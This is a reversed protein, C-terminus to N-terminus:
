PHSVAQHAPMRSSYSTRYGCIYHLPQRSDLTRCTSVHALEQLDPSLTRLSVNEYVVFQVTLMLFYFGSLFHHKCYLM